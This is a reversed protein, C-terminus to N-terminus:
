RGLPQGMIHNAPIIYGEGPVCAGEVCTVLYQSQLQNTGPDVPMSLKLIKEDFTVVGSSWEFNGWPGAEVQVVAATSSPLFAQKARDLIESGQPSEMDVMIFEGAPILGGSYTLNKVPILGATTTPIVRFITLAICAYVVVIGIFAIGFAKLIRTALLNSYTNKAIRIQPNKKKAALHAGPQNPPTPSNVENFGSKLAAGFNGGVGSSSKRARSPVARSGSQPMPSSM